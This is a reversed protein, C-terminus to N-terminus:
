GTLYVCVTFFLIASYPNLTKAAKTWLFLITILLLLVKSVFTIFTQDSANSLMYSILGDFLM